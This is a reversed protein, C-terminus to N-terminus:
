PDDDPPSNEVAASAAAAVDDVEEVSKPSLAKDAPHRAADQKRQPLISTAINSPEPPGPEAPKPEGPEPGTVPPPPIPQAPMSVLGGFAASAGWPVHVFDM